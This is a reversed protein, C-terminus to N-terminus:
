KKRFIFIDDIKIKELGDVRTLTSDLGLGKERNEIIISGSKIESAIKSYFDFLNRPKAFPSYSYVINFESFDFDMIDGKTINLEGNWFHELNKYFFDLYKQEKEVGSFTFKHGIMEKSQLYFDFLAAGLGIGADCMNVEIPLIGIEEIRKLLFINQELNSMIYHWEDILIRESKIFLESLSDFETWLSNSLQVYEILLPNPEVTETM